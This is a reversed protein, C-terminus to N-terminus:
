PRRASWIKEDPVNQDLATTFSDTIFKRIGDLNSRTISLKYGHALNARVTVSHTTDHTYHGADDTHQFSTNFVLKDPLSRSWDLTTGRNFGGKRPMYEKVLWDGCKEHRNRLEDNGSQVCDLRAEILNALAQHLKRTM